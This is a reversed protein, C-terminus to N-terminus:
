RVAHAGGTQTLNSYRALAGTRVMVTNQPLSAVGSQMAELYEELGRATLTPRLCLVNMTAESPVGLQRFIKLMGVLQDRYIKPSTKKLLQCLTVSHQEGLLTAAKAELETVAQSLDRYHHTNKVVTGKESSLLHRAIEDSGDPSLIILQGQDERLAVTQRQWVMPVSYKVSLYSILGTKDVQRTLLQGDSHVSGPSFYPQMKVKEEAEYHALPQKGTTGHTRVNAVTDLWNALYDHLHTEDRFSEDYLADQKVYKVGAEVKGKSEPDFGECARITYGAETAYQAMRQNLELERYKESLVVLKTQDYVLEEPCGGFYRFAADHMRIFISTNIPKLSAAVYMLRSYSLVFVVFYVTMAKGGILVNRLEGPDVQCQVGPVMDLVPQYYRQQAVAVQQKIRAVCRRLTRDSINFDEFKKILRRKIKVASLESAEALQHRIYADYKDLQKQRERDSLQTSIQNEDMNLYKRVTNRSINLERAIQRISLGDGQDHLAKIKHIM